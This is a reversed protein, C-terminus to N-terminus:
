LCSHRPPVPPVGRAIRNIHPPAKDPNRVPAHPVHSAKNPVAVRRLGRNQRYCRRAFLENWDITLWNDTVHHWHSERGVMSHDITRSDCTKELLDLAQQLVRITKQALLPQM